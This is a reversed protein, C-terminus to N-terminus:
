SRIAIRLYGNVVKGPINCHYNSDPLYLALEVETKIPLDIEIKGGLPYGSIKSEYSGGIWMNIAFM